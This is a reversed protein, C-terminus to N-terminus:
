TIRAVKVFNAETISGYFIRGAAAGLLGWFPMLIAAAALSVAGAAVNLVSPFRVEGLGLLTLHPVINASLLAFALTLVALVPYAQRSFSHGMWVTLIQRGFLVLPLALGLSVVLNVPVALRYLKRVRELSNTESSASVHPFLFNFAASPIAHVQQALQTCLTYLAVPGPGLMAAILFKDGQSFIVGATNQMWTYVGFSFVERCIKRDWAYRLDLTPVLRRVEVAMVVVGAATALATGLMIAVVGFGVMALVVAALVTATKTVATICAPPRYLEFGKLASSLVQYISQLWLVLGGMRIAVLAEAQLKTDLSFVHHILFPSLTFVAAAGIGGLLTSLALTGSVVRAVGQLDGRGRYSSAYKITADGLGAHFIGITGAIASALMWVGYRDVGLKPVLIPASVIM